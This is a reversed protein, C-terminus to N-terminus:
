PILARDLEGRSVQSLCDSSVVEAGSLVEGALVAVASHSLLCGPVPWVPRVARSGEQAAQLVPRTLPERTVTPFNLVPQESSASFRSSCSRGSSWAESPVAEVHPALLRWDGRCIGGGGPRPRTGRAAATM